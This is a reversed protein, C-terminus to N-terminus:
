VDFNMGVDVLTGEDACLLILNVLLTDIAFVLNFGELVFLNDVIAQDLAYVVDELSEDLASARRVCIGRWGWWSTDVCVDLIRRAVALHHYAAKMVSTVECLVFIWSRCTCSKCFRVKAGKVEAHQFQGIM